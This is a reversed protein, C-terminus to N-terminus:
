CGNKYNQVHGSHGTTSREGMWQQAFALATSPTDICGEARALELASLLQGVIPGPEIQLSNMLNQGSVLPKPHAIASRANLFEEVLPALSELSLGSAIAVVGLAPFAERVMRFLLYQQQRSLPGQRLDASLQALGQLITGVLNIEAKSYKMEQLNQRAVNPDLDVLGVLKATAFFTRRVGEGSKPRDSLTKHLLSELQPWRATVEIEVRDMEAILDLGRDTAGGFSSQLLGDQWLTKLWQSGATHSLLYSLETRIREPAVRSLLPALRRLQLRTEADISFDLQAAQRYARLLRLPDDALNEVSVMRLVRQELDRQGGLPDVLTQTHPSYAIANITFDRRHLDDLLTAGVQLAFDATAGDFVVRAIQREEDLVVFGAHYHCAIANATQVTQQPLVFDLDLYPSSYELLADRVCGGVLYAAQPLWDLGFPWYEPSLVSAQLLPLKLLL